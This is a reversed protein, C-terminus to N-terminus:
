KGRRGTRRGTNVQYYNHCSDNGVPLLEAKLVFSRSCFGPLLHFVKNQNGCSFCSILKCAGQTETNVKQTIKNLHRLLAPFVLYQYAPFSLLLTTKEEKFYSKYCLSLHLPVDSNIICANGELHAKLCIVARLFCAHM